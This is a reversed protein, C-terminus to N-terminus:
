CCCSREHCDVCLLVIDHSRHSKLHEPFHM